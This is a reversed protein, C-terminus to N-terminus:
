LQHHTHEIYSSSCVSDKTMLFAFKMKGSLIRGRGWSCDNQSSQMVAPSAKALAIRIVMNRLLLVCM